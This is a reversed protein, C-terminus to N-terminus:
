IWVIEDEYTVVDGEFVVARSLSAEGGPDALQYWGDQTWLWYTRETIAYGVRHYLTIAPSAAELTAENAYELDDDYIQHQLTSASHATM